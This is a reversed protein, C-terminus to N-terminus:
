TPAQRGVSDKLVDGEQEAGASCAAQDAVVRFDSIVEAGDAIACVLDALVRGRYDVLLRRSALAKSLSATLGTNDALARLLAVGAHSLKVERFFGCCGCQDRTFACRDVV